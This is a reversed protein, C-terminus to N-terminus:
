RASARLRSENPTWDKTSSSNRTSPRRWVGSSTAAATARARAESLGMATGADRTGMAVAVEGLRQDVLQGVARDGELVLGIEVLRERAEGDGDRDELLKIRTGAGFTLPAVLVDAAAYVPRLDPVFGTLTM